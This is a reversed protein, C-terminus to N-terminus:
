VKKVINIMLVVIVAAVVLVAALKMVSVQDIAVKTQVEPLKGEGLNKLLDSQFFNM